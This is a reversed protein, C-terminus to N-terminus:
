CERQGFTGKPSFILPLGVKTEVEVNLEFFAGLKGQAVIKYKNQTYNSGIEEHM